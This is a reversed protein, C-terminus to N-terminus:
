ITIIIIVIVIVVVVVIIIFSCVTIELCGSLVQLQDPGWIQYRCKFYVTRPVAFCLSLCFFSLFHCSPETSTSKLQVRQRPGPAEGWRLQLREGPVQVLLPFPPLKPKTQVHCPSFPMMQLLFKTNILWGM